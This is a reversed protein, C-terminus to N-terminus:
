RSPDVTVDLVNLPKLPLLKHRRPTSPASAVKLGQVLPLPSRSSLPERVM